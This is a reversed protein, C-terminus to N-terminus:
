IDDDKEVLLTLEKASPPFSKTKGTTFVPTMGLRIIKWEIDRLVLVAKDTLPDTIEDRSQVRNIVNRADTPLMCKVIDPDKLFLSPQDLSFMSRGSTSSERSTFTCCPLYFLCISLLTIVVLLVAAGNNQYHKLSKTQLNIVTCLLGPYHLWLLRGNGALPKKLCMGIVASSTVM